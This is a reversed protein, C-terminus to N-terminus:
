WLKNEPHEKIIELIEEKTLGSEEEDIQFGRIEYGTVIETTEDVYSYINTTFVKQPADLFILDVFLGGGVFKEVNFIVFKSKLLSKYPTLKEMIEKEGSLYENFTQRLFRFYDNEYWDDKTWDAFRIENLSKSVLSDLAKILESNTGGKVPVENKQKSADQTITNTKNQQGCATLFAALVFLIALTTTTIKMILNMVLKRIVVRKTFKMIRTM